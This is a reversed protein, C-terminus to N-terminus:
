ACSPSTRPESRDRRRHRPLHRGRQLRRPHQSGGARRPREHRHGRPPRRRLGIRARRGTGQRGPHLVHAPRGPDRHGQDRRRGALGPPLDGRALPRGRRARREDSARRGSGGGAGTPELARRGRRHRGCRRRRRRRPGRRVRHCPHTEHRAGPDLIPFHPLSRITGRRARPFSRGSPSDRQRPRPTPPRARGRRARRGNPRHTPMAPGAISAPAIIAGVAPSTSGAHRTHETALDDVSDGDDRHRRRDEHDAAAPLLRAENGLAVVARGRPEGEDGPESGDREHCRDGDDRQEAGVTASGSGQRRGGGPRQRPARRVPAM